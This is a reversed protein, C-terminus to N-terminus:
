LTVQQRDSDLILHDRALLVTQNVLKSTWHLSWPVRHTTRQSPPPYTQTHIHPISTHPFLQVTHTHIHMQTLLTTCTYTHTQIHHAQAHTHTHTHTHIPLITARTHPTHIRTCARVVYRYVTIVLSGGFKIASRGTFSVQKRSRTSSQRFTQKLM